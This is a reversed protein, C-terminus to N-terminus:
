QALVNGAELIPLVTAFLIFGVVVSLMLILIPEAVATLRGSLVTAQRDYDRGLRDLMSDLQGSQQGLSFIQAVAPPFVAHRAVAEKLGVGTQVDARIQALSKQIVLNSCSKEAIAFAEVLEVGSRLLCAIVLSMRGIAQKRILTGLIPVKLAFKSVFMRGSKSKTWALAAIAIAAIVLILWWGHGLLLDSLSKLVRTPWPLKSGLEELNKLLMPVVVTMLFLSVAVSVCLVIAPYMIASLVRDRLQSSNERFTSVQDLVEELNGAHEGVRVMGIMMDDFLWSEQQMATALSEGTSVRDRLAVLSAQLGTRVQPLSCDMAELLPVGAQLLTSLERLFETLAGSYRRRKLQSFLGAQSRLAREEIRNVIVGSERLRDRAARLTDAAIMGRLSRGAADTGRYQYTSM